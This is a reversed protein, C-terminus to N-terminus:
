NIIEDITFSSVGIVADACGYSVMLNNETLVSGCSFVVNPIWGIREYEMEPELFSEECRYLIKEPNDRDLIISGLRYTFDQDVGHYIQLWGEDIEMPPGAAGIKMSDWKGKRPGLLQKSNEWVKLDKSYAIHIHPDIRHFMVYHDDIKSPFIVANKNITTQFPYIRESWNWKKDLFDNTSITTIAIQPIEAYATYTM